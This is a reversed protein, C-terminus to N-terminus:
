ALEPPVIARLLTEIGADHQRRVLWWLAGKKVSWAGPRGTVLRAALEGLTPQHGILLVPRAAIGTKWGAVDLLDAASAEPAIRPATEFPLELAAATQQARVAPSAIIRLGAPAHRRIWSAVAKAQRQGRPTLRRGLDDDVSDEAEAHRWLLLDARTPATDEPKM